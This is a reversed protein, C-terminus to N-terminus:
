ASLRTVSGMTEEDIILVYDDHDALRAMAQEELSEWDRYPVDMSEIELAFGQFREFSEILQEAQPLTSTYFPDEILVRRRRRNRRYLAKIVDKNWFEVRAENVVRTWIQEDGDLWSRIQVYRQLDDDNVSEHFYLAPQNGILKQVLSELQQRLEKANNKLRRIAVNEDGFELSCRATMTNVTMATSILRAATELMDGKLADELELLLLKEAHVLRDIASNLMSQRVTFDDTHLFEDARDLATRLSAYREKDFQRDLRDYIDAIEQKLTEIRKKLRYITYATIAVDLLPGAVTIAGAVVTITRANMGAAQLLSPLLRMNSGADRSIKGGERLWAFVQKSNTHRIVGGVREYKGTSLGTLIDNPVEFEVTITAM